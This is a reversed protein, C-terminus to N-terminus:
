AAVMWLLLLVNLQTPQVAKMHKIHLWRPMKAIELGVPQLSQQDGLAIEAM